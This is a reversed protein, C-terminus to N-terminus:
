KFERCKMQLDKEAIGCVRQSTDASEEHLTQLSKM